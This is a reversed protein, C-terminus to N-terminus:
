LAAGGGSKPVNRAVTRPAPTPAVEWAPGGGGATAFKDPAGVPAADTVKVNVGIRKADDPSFWAIDRPSAKTAHVVMDIPLGLRTIYAGVLANGVATERPAGDEIVFSAHFGIRASTSMLRKEGGLWALACASACMAGSAVNTDFKRAHITEGMELGASLSGGKSAFIVTATRYKGAIAAFREADGKEFDGTVVIVGTGEATKTHRMDAANAVSGALLAAGLAAARIAVNCEPRLFSSKCM